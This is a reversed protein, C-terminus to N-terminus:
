NGHLIAIKPLWFVVGFTRPLAFTFSHLTIVFLWPLPFPLKLGTTVNSAPGALQVNTVIHLYITQKLLHSSFQIEKPFYFNRSNFLDQM